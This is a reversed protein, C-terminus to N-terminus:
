SNSNKINKLIPLKNKEIAFGKKTIIVLYEIKSEKFTSISNDLNECKNIYEQAANKYNNLDETTKKGGGSVVTELKKLKDGVIQVEKLENKVAELIISKKEDLATEIELFKKDIDDSFSNFFSEFDESLKKESNLTSNEKEM